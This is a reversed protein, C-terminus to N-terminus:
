TACNMGLGIGMPNYTKHQPPAGLAAQLCCLSQAVQGLWAVTSLAVTGVVLPAGSRLPQKLVPFDQATRPFCVPFCTTFTIRLMRINGRHGVNQMSTSPIYKKFKGGFPM